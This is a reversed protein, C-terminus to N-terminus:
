AALLPLVALFALQSHESYLVRLPIITSIYYIHFLNRHNEHPGAILSKKIKNFLIWKNKKLLTCLAPTARKTTRGEYAFVSQQPFALINCNYSTRIYMIYLSAKCFINNKLKSCPHSYSYSVSDWFVLIYM